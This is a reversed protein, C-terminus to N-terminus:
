WSNLIKLSHILIQKIFPLMKETKAELLQHQSPNQSQTTPILIEIIM